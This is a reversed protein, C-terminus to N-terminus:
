DKNCRSERERLKMWALVMGRIEWPQNQLSFDKVKVPILEYCTSWWGEPWRGEGDTPNGFPGSLLHCHMLARKLILQSGREQAPERCASNMCGHYNRLSWAPFAPFASPNTKSHTCKVSLRDPPLFCGTLWFFLASIFLFSTFTLM